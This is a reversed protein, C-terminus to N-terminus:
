KKKRKKAGAAGGARMRKAPGGMRMKKVPKKKPKMAM